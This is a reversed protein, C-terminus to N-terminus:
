KYCPIHLFLEMWALLLAKDESDNITTNEPFYGHDTAAQDVDMRHTIYKIVKDETLPVPSSPMVTRQAKMM